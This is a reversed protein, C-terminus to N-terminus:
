EYNEEMVDDFEVNEPAYISEAKGNVGILKDVGGNGAYEHIGGFRKKVLDMAENENTAQVEVAIIVTSHGLVIYNRKNIFIM